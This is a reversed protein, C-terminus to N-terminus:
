LVTVSVTHKDPKCGPQSVAVDILYEGPGANGLPVPVSVAKYGNVMVYHTLDPGLEPPLTFELTVDAPTASRLTVDINVTGGV